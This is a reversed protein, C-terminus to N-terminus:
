HRLGALGSVEFLGETLKARFDVCELVRPDKMCLSSQNELKQQM